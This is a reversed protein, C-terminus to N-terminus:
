GNRKRRHFLDKFFFVTKKWFLKMVFLGGIVAGIMLQFLYSGTGPDLYAYARQVFIGSFLVLAIVMAALFSLRM